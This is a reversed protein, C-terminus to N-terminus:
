DAERRVPFIRALALPVAKATFWGLSGWFSLWFIGKAGLFAFLAVFASVAAWFWPSCLSEKIKEAIQVDPAVDHSYSFRVKLGISEMFKRVLSEAKDDKVNLAVIGEGGDIVFSSCAVGDMLERTLLQRVVGRMGLGSVKLAGNPNDKWLFYM